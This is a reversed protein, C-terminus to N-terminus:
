RRDAAENDQRLKRLLRQLAAEMQAYLQEFRPRLAQDNSGSWVFVLRLESGPRRQMGEEIVNRQLRYAERMMRRLRNRRVATGASRRVTFGVRVPAPGDNDLLYKVVIQGSRFGHGSRFMENFTAKGRLREARGPGPYRKQAM